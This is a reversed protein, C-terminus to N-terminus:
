VSTAFSLDAIKKMGSDDVLVVNNSDYKPIFPGQKHVVGVIIGKKKEGKITVM